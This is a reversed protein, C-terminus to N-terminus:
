DRRIVGTIAAAGLATVIWGVITFVWSLWWMHYGAAGRTTSPAWADTQGINIIPIVLDTAYAIAQFTEWDRGAQTKASWEEAANEKHSLAKWDDSVQIVASNPAFGGFTWAMHSPIAALGILLFLFRLSRFPQHGYGTLTGMLKDVFLWHAAALSKTALHSVTINKTTESLKRLNKRYSKLLLADRKELVQRADNDHGMDRLIKALQTYPQPTFTGNWNSVNHLWALRSKADLPGGIITDYTLGELDVRWGSPWSGEDDCLVSTHANAFNLTGKTVTVGRWVLGGNIKASQANFAHGNKVEFTAKECALQGGITASNLDITAQTTINRLFVSGTVKMTQGFLDQLDSGNLVLQKCESQECDIHEEFRSNQMRIAGRTTNLKLDLTGTVHAGKVWVGIDDVKCDDCGGLILYRLVDAHIHRSPAPTGEPPLEGDSLGYPEGKQCAEILQEEAPTLERAQLEAWTRIHAMM